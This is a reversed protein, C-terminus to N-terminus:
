AFIGVSDEAERVARHFQTNIGTYQKTGAASVVVNAFFIAKALHDPLPLHKLLPYGYDSTFTIMFVNAVAKEYEVMLANFAVRQKVLVTPIATGTYRCLALAVEVLDGKMSFSTLTPPAKMEMSPYLAGIHIFKMAVHMSEHAALRMLCQYLLVYSYNGLDHMRREKWVFGEHSLNKFDERNMHLVSNMADLLIDHHLIKKVVSLLKAVAPHGLYGALLHLRWECSSSASM